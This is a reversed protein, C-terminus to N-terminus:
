RADKPVFFSHRLKNEWAEKESKGAKLLKEAEEFTDNLRKLFLITM